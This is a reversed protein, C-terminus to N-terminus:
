TKGGFGQIIEKREIAHWMGRGSRKGQNVEDLM